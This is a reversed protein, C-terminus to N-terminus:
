GKFEAHNMGPFGNTLSRARGSELLGVGTSYPPTKNLWAARFWRSLGGVLPGVIGLVVDRVLKKRVTTLQM